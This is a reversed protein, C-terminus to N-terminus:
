ERHMKRVYLRLLYLTLVGPYVLALLL